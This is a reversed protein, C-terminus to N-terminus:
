VASEHEAAKDIEQKLAAADADIQREILKSARQLEKELQERVRSEGIVILAAQGEDLTDGLDKLDSRSMGGKLHGILGGAGSGVIAAGLISPPFIAGALAGVAVGTWAGRQTPKERKHVHVKGDDTKELVAADYTGVLGDSHADLLQEYEARADQASEYTAAYLFIPRDAM